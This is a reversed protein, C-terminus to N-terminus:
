AFPEYEISVLMVIMIIFKLHAFYYVKRKISFALEYVSECCM